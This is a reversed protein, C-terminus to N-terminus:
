AYDVYKIKNVDVVTKIVHAIINLEIVDFLYIHLNNDVCCVLIRLSSAKTYQWWEVRSM